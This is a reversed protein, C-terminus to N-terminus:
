KGIKLVKEVLATVNVTKNKQSAEIAAFMAANSHINDELTTEPKPGGGLWKLHADIIYSHGVYRPSRPKVERTTIKGTKNNRETIHKKRGFQKQRYSNTPKGM